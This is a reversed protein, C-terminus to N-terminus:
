ANPRERYDVTLMLDLMEFAEKFLPYDEPYNSKFDEYLDVKKLHRWRKIYMGKITHKYDIDLLAELGTIKVTSHWIEDGSDYKFFPVRKYM